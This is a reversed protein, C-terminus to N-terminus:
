LTFRFDEILAGPTRGGVVQRQRYTSPSPFDEQTKTLDILNKGFCNFISEDFRLDAIPAQIEGGDVWFCAYRTMGTIRGGRQDSWNLYHLNSLYLGRELRSLTDSEDMAGPLIEPAVLSEDLRCANGIAKYEKASRSSTLLERLQGEKILETRTSAVEGLENFRPSLGIDFNEVLNFKPSFLKDGIEHNTLPSEGRKKGGFSLAGWSMTELIENMAAPALYVRYLGRDVKKEERQLLNLQKVKEDLQKRFAEGDWSRGAFSAKVAKRSVSFLSYDLNFSETSFWHRQGLSNMNARAVPGRALYGVFDQGKAIQLIEGVSEQLSPLRGEFHERSTGHNEFPVQFPDHPASAALTQLESLIKRLRPLDTERVGQLSLSYSLTKGGSQYQLELQAQEVETSQRVKAQNFRVFLSDESYLNMSLTESAKLESFLEEGLQYFYHELLLVDKLANM